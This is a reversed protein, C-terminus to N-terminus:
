AFAVSSSDCSPILIALLFILLRLYASSLVRIDSLLSSSFLRKILIFSSLSFAPKFSLMWFVLIMANLGMVEHCISPPFFYFCNYIKRENPGSWQPSCSTLLCKSRILLAIVFSSLMNFLFFMVKNVFIWITLAMTKGTTTYAHLHQITFFTSHPLISAKLNHHQLLSRLTGQLALLDFWDIRFSILGSYEYPLVLTSASAGISQGGSAFLQNMPFSELAQFSQPCSSIPVVSSSITPHCWQCSLCSNSCDGPSLSPCSLRAHQMCDMLDWLTPCLKDFSYCCCCCINLPM